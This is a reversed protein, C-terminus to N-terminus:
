NGNGFREENYAQKRKYIEVPDVDLAAFLCALYILVDVCEEALDDKIDELTYTGRYVKKVLNQVEGAEGGM